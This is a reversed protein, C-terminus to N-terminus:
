VSAQLEALRRRLKRAVATGESKQLCVAAVQLSSKDGPSILARLRGAAVYPEAVHIPLGAVALGSLAYSLHTDVGHGVLSATRLLSLEEFQAVEFQGHSTCEFSSVHEATLDAADATFLPHGKGCYLMRDEDYLRDYELGAVRHTVAVMVLDFKGNFLDAILQYGVGLELQISLSEGNARMAALAEPLRCKPNCVINDEVGLRLQGWSGDHIKGVTDTFREGAQLLEIAADYVSRGEPLLRFGTPGRECLRLGLRLELSKMNESILSQAMNLRVQAGAFGNSEVIAIFIKLRKIDADSIKKLFNTRVAATAM